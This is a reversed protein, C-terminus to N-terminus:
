KALKSKEPDFVQVMSIIPKIDTSKHLKQGFDHLKMQKSVHRVEPSGSINDSDIMNTEFNDAQKEELGVESNQLEVRM